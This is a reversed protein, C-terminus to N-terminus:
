RRPQSDDRIIQSRKIQLNVELLRTVSSINEEIFVMLIAPRDAVTNLEGELVRGLFFSSISLFESVVVDIDRFQYSHM